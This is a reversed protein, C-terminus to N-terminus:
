MLAKGHVMHVNPIINQIDFQVCVVFLIRERQIYRNSFYFHFCALVSNSKTM